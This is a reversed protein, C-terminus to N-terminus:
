LCHFCFKFLGTKELMMYALAGSGTLLPMRSHKSASLSVASVNQLKDAERYPSYKCMTSSKEKKKKEKGFDVSFHM